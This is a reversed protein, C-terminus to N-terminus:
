AGACLLAAQALMAQDFPQAAIHVDRWGSQLQGAVRASIAVASCSAVPIELRAREGEFHRAMALSHFLIVADAPVLDASLPLDVVAYCCRTEVRVSAPPDFPLHEEGTLRLAQTRGDRALLPALSQLNGDGIAAVAFGAGKAAKATAAGVAYVPLHLLAALGSGEHRVANASGLLLADYAQPAAVAWDRPQVRSLPLAVPELGM